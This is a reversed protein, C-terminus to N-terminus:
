INGYNEDLILNIENLVDSGIVEYKDNDLNFETFDMKPINEQSYFKYIWEDDEKEDWRFFRSELSKYRNYLMSLEKIMENNGYIKDYNKNVHFYILRKLKITNGSRSIRIYPEDQFDNPNKIVELTTKKFNLSTLLKDEFIKDLEIDEYNKSTECNLIKGKFNITPDINLIDREKFIKYYTIFKVKEELYINLSKIDSHLTSIENLINNFNSPCINEIFFDNKNRIIKDIEIMNNLLNIDDNISKIEDNKEDIEKFYRKVYDNIISNPNKTIFEKKQKMNLKYFREKELEFKYQKVTSKYEDIVSWFFLMGSFITLPVSLLFWYYNTFSLYLLGINIIFILLFFKTVRSEKIFEFIGM